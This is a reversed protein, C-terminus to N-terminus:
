DARRDDKISEALRLALPSAASLDFPRANQRNEEATRQECTYCESFPCVEEQLPHGCEPCFPLAHVTARGLDTLTVLHEMTLM